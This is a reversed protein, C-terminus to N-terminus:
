VSDEMEPVKGAKERLHVFAIALIPTLSSCIARVAGPPFVFAMGVVTALLAADIRLALIWFRLNSKRMCNLKIVMVVWGRPL